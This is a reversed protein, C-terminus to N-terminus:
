STLALSITANKCANQDAADNNFFLTGSNALATGTTGHTIVQNQAVDAITFWSALCAPVSTNVVAHVTGVQLDTSSANDATYPVTVSGGPFLGATPVTAHLVLAGNGAAVNGGGTGSGEASWYAFAATATVAVGVSVAIAAFKKSLRM